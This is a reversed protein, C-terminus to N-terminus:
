LLSNIPLVIILNFTTYLLFLINFKVELLNLLISLILFFSSYILISSVSRIWRNIVGVFCKLLTIPNKDTTILTAYTTLFGSMSFFAQLWVPSNLVAQWVFQDYM